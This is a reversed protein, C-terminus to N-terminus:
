LRLEQSESWDAVPLCNSHIAPLRNQSVTALDFHLIKVGVVM